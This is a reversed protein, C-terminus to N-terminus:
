QKGLPCKPCIKRSAHDCQAKYISEETVLIYHALLALLSTETRQGQPKM